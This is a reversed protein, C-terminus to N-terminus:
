RPRRKRDTRVLYTMALSAIGMREDESMWPKRVRPLRHALEPFREAIALAIDRKTTGYARFTDRINTRSFAAAESAHKKALTHM